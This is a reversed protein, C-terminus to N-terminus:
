SYRLVCNRNLEISSKQKDAARVGLIQMLYSFFHSRENRVSMAEMINLRAAKYVLSSRDDM